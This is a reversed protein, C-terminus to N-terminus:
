WVITGGGRIIKFFIESRIIDFIEFRLYRETNYSIDGIRMAPNAARAKVKRIM